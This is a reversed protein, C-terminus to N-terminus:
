PTLMGIVRASVTRWDAGDRQLEMRFSVTEQRLRGFSNRWSLAVAFEVSASAGDITSPNARPEAVTLKAAGEMLRLLLQENKRDQESQPSYLSTVTRADHARLVSVYRQVGADIAARARREEAAPDVAPARPPEVPPPAPAVVTLRVTTSKGGASATLDATGPGAATVVGTTAGITAVRSDSSTWAVSQDPMVNGRSDRPTASLTINEGVTLRRPQDVAISALVVPPDVRVRLTGSATGSAARIETTGVSVGTVTGTARNVTAVAANPSTWTVRQGTMPRGNTGMVTVDPPAVTQGVMLIMEAPSVVVSKATVPATPTAGTGTAPTATPTTTVPTPTTAAPPPAAPASTGGAGTGPTEAVPVPTPAPAQPQSSPQPEPVVPPVSGTAETSGPSGRLVVFWFVAAAAVILVGAGLGRRRVRRPPGAPASVPTSGAIPVAPAGPIAAPVAPAPKAVSEMRVTSADNTPTLVVAAADAAPPAPPPPTPAPPAAPPSVSMPRVPQGPETTPITSVPAVPPTQAAPFASKAVSPDPPHDRTWTPVPSVPTLSSTPVSKRILAALETRYPDDEGLPRAGLATLAQAISPFRDDPNKALMRLIAAELDPPCDPRLARIPRPAEDAHAKMVVFSPGTFPAAGVVMEYAVVGLSYQDSAWTATLAYCQEPSMYAPTGVVSGTKTHTDSDIAKAIGFDTVLADGEVDILINAPKVDRHIIGRRHAYALASGVQFLISRALPYPLAGTDRLVQDLSQGEVFKMIFFHLDEVNRVAHISIINPHSMQAVMVAEERFKRVMEDNTLLGPSMLKIAVKRRLSIDQALFVIAMGGRGLERRIEFEGLTAARLRQIIREWGDFPTFGTQTPTDGAPATTPVVNGGAGTVLAGCSGCFRDGAYIAGGCQTCATTTATPRGTM